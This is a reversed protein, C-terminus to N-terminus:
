ESVVELLTFDSKTFDFGIMLSMPKYAKWHNGNPEILDIEYYVVCGDTHHEGEKEIFISWGNFYGDKNFKGESDTLWDVEHIVDELERLTKEELYKM